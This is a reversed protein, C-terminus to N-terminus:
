PGDQSAPFAIVMVFQLFDCARAALRPMKQAQEAERAAM